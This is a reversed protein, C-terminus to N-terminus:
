QPKITKHLEIKFKDSSEFDKIPHLKFIKEENNITSVGRLYGYKKLTNMFALLDFLENKSKSDGLKFVLKKYLKYNRRREFYKKIKQILKKM